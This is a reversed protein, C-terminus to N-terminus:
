EDHEIKSVLPILITEEITSHINLDNELECLSTIIKRRLVRDNKVPVHKLLLEKLDNLKFEIDTHHEQYESVSYKEQKETNGSPENKLLRYFYPFAVRNEYHLHEKVEKFYEDFFKEILQIEASNNQEHLQEFYSRIEPYKENEYYNHSNKLFKIITTLDERTLNQHETPQFGNYLNAFILFLEESINNTACLQKVTKEHVIFDMELHEMLLLLSPNEFILSSIKMEPRIFNGKTQYM